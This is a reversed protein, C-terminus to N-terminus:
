TACHPRVVPAVWGKSAVFPNAGTTACEEQILFFEGTHWKGTHTSIWPEADRMPHNVSQDAGGYSQGEARWRGLFVGLAEHQAGRVPPTETESM